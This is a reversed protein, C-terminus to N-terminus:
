ILREEVKYNVDNIDKVDEKGIKLEKMKSALTEARVEM